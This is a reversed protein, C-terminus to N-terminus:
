LDLSFAVFCPFEFVSSISILVFVLLECSFLCSVQLRPHRRDLHRYRFNTKPIKPQPQTRFQTVAIAIPFVLRDHDSHSLTLPLFSLAPFPFFWWSAFLNRYLHFPALSQYCYEHQRIQTNTRPFLPVCFEQTTSKYELLRSSIKSVVKPVAPYSTRGCRTKSTITRTWYAGIRVTSQRSGSSIMLKIMCTRFRQM